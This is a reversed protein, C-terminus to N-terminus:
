GCLLMRDVYEDCSSQVSTYVLGFDKTNIETGGKVMDRLAFRMVAEMSARVWEEFEM